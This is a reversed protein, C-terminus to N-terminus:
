HSQAISLAWVPLLARIEKGVAPSVMAAVSM